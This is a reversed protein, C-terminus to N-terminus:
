ACPLVARLADRDHTMSGGLAGTRDRLSDMDTLRGGVVDVVLEGGDLQVSARSGPQATRAVLLYATLEVEPAFRGSPVADLQVDPISELAPALGADALVAPYIGHALARLGTLADLVGDIWRATRASPPALRLEYSAAVLRQQSGDHLDREVQRRAADATEVVRQRSERLQSLQALMGARLRESDLAVRAAPGIELEAPPDGAVDLAAVVQGARTILAATAGPGAEGPAESGDARVWRDSGPLWYRVSVGAGLVHQLEAEVTGPGSAASLRAALRGLDRRQRALRGSGVVLATGLVVFAAAQVALWTPAPPVLGAVGAVVVMGLPLAARRSAGRLGRVAVAVAGIWVLAALVLSATALAGAAAPSSTLLLTEADCASRCDPDLFPDAVLSHALSVAALTGYVAWLRRSGSRRRLDVALHLVAAPLLAALVTAATRLPAPGAFWVAWLPACWAVCAIAPGTVVARDTVLAGSLAAAALALGAGVFLAAAAPPEVVPILGATGVAVVLALAATVVRRTM